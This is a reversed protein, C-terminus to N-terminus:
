LLSLPRIRLPPSWVEDPTEQGLSILLIMVCFHLNQCLLSNLDFYRGRPGAGDPGYRFQQPAYMFGTSALNAM